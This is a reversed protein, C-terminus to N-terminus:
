DEKKKAEARVADRRAEADRLLAAAELNKPDLKCAEALATVAEEYRQRDFHGKGLQHLQRALAPQAIGLQETAEPDGPMLNQAKPDETKKPDVDVKPPEPAPKKGSCGALLAAACLTLFLSRPMLDDGDTRPARSPSGLVPCTRPTM